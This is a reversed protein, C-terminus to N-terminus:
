NLSPREVRDIVLVEVPGKGATLRLGLQEQVASFMSPSAPNTSSPRDGSASPPRDQAFELHINFLGTVRTKDIVVRDSGFNSLDAAFDAMSEGRSDM